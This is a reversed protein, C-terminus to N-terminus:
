QFHAKKKWKAYITTESTYCDKKTWSANSVDNMSGEVKTTLTSDAYWGDFIYGTKTPTPLIITEPACTTCISISDITNGGDTNFIVNKKTAGVIDKCDDSKQWKAVVKTDSTIVTNYDIKKGDNTYWGIFEYGEKETVPLDVTNGKTVKVTSVEKGGDTDFSVTLKNDKKFSLFAKIGVIVALLAFISIIIKKNKM